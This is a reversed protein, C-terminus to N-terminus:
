KQMEKPMNRFVEKCKVKKHLKQNTMNPKSMQKLKLASKEEETLIPAKKTNKDTAHHKKFLQYRPPDTNSLHFPRDMVKNAILAEIQGPKGNSNELITTKLFGLVSTFDEESQRSAEGGGNM